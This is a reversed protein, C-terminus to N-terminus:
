VVRCKRPSRPLSVGTMSGKTRGTLSESESTIKMGLLCVRLFSHNINNKPKVSDKGPIKRRRNWNSGLITESDRKKNIKKLKKKKKKQHGMLNAWWLPVAGAGRTGAGYAYGGWAIYARSLDADTQWGQEDISVGAFHNFPADPGFAIVRHENLRIHRDGALALNHHPSRDALKTAQVDQEVINADLRWRGFPTYHDPFSCAVNNSSFPPSRQERPSHDNQGHHREV